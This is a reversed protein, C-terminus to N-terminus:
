AGKGGASVAATPTNFRIVSKIADKGALVDTIKDPSFRGTILARVQKPWRAEFRGLDTIANAFSPPGANVTGYLIQNELVLDRMIRKADLTV